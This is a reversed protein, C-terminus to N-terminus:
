PSLTPSVPTALTFDVKEIVENQAVYTAVLKEMIGVWLTQIHAFSYEEEWLEDQVAEGFELLSPFDKPKSALGVRENFWCLGIAASASNLLGPLALNVLSAQEEPTANETRFTDWIGVEKVLSILRTTKSLTPVRFHHTGKGEVEISFYHAKNPIVRRAPLKHM